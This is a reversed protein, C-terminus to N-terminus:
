KFSFKYYLRGGILTANDKTDGPFDEQVISLKSELYVKWVSMGFLLDLSHFQLELVEPEGRAEYKLEKGVNYVTFGIGLYYRKSISKTAILSQDMYITNKGYRYFDYRCTTGWGVDLAIKKSIKVGLTANIGIGNVGSTYSYPALKNITPGSMFGETGRRYFITTRGILGADVFIRKNDNQARGDVLILLLIFSLLIRM